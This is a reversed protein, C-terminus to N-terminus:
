RKTNAGSRKASAAKTQIHIKESVYDITVIDNRFPALGIVGFTSDYEENSRRPDDCYTAKRGSAFRINGLFISQSIPAEYCPIMQGWVPAYVPEVEELQKLGVLHLWHEKLFLAIDISASGTDFMVRKRDGNGLSITVIPRNDLTEFDISETREANTLDFPGKTYRYRATALDLSLAGELFFESGITGVVGRCKKSPKPSKEYVLIFEKAAAESGLSFRQIDLKESDSFGVYRSPLTSRYLISSYAGTDLQMYCKIGDLKVPLLIAVKKEITKGNNFSTWHFPLWQASASTNILAFLVFTIFSRMNESATSFARHM